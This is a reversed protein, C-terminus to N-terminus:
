IILLKGSNQEHAYHVIDIYKNNYYLDMVCGVLGEQVTCYEISLNIHVISFLM